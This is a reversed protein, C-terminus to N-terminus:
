FLLWGYCDPPGEWAIRPDGAPRSVVTAGAPGALTVVLASGALATALRKM